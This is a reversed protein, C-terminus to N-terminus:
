GATQPEEDLDDPDFDGPQLEDIHFCCHRRRVVWQGPSGAPEGTPVARVRLDGVHLPTSTGLWERLWDLVGPDGYGVLQGAGVGAIGGAQLDAVGYACPTSDTSGLVLPHPHDLALRSFWGPPLRDAREGVRVPEALLQAIRQLAGPVADLWDAVVSREGLPRQWPPTANPGRMRVFGCPQADTGVLQHDQRTFAISLELEPRLQVPAVLMGGPVLQALWAPSLDDVGVTVEIRDFPARDPAGAWGDGARVKVTPALEALRRRAEAALADDVEVSTVAGDPGALQALLAANYGSATGVELIRDGPRVALQELMLAVMSPQSISSTPRGDPDFSLVVARDAYAQELDEDGNLFRERPVAGIAAALSPSTIIGERRLSRVLRRRLLDAHGM